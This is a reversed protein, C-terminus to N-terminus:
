FLIKVLDSLPRKYKLPHVFGLDYIFSVVDKTQKPNWIRMASIDCYECQESDAIYKLSKNLKDIVADNEYNKLSVVAIDCKKNDAKIRNILTCYKQEFEATNEEFFKLDAEGIHVLLTKPNIEAVCNSYVEMANNVSLNTFSRNYLNSNLDFAQKLECLPIEKDEDGGFIVIGGQESLENLKRYKKIDKEIM